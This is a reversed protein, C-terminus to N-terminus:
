VDTLCLADLYDFHEAPILTVGLYLLRNILAKPLVLFRINAGRFADPDIDQLNPFYLLEIERCNWFADLNIKKVDKGMVIKLNLCNEFCQTPIEKVGGLDLWRLEYANMFAEPWLRYNKEGLFVYRVNSKALAKSYIEELNKFYGIHADLNNVRNTADLQTLHLHPFINFLIKEHFFLARNAVAGFSSVSFVTLIISVILKNM